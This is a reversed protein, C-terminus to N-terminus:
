AWWAPRGCAQEPVGCVCAGEGLLLLAIATLGVLGPAWMGTWARRM